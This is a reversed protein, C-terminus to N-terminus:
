NDELINRLYRSSDPGEDGSREDGTEDDIMEEVLNNVTRKASIGRWEDLQMEEKDENWM